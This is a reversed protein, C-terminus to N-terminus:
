SCLYQQRLDMLELDRDISKKTVGPTNEENEEPWGLEYTCVNWKGKVKNYREQYTRSESSV